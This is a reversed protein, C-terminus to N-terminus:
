RARSHAAVSVGASACHGGGEAEVREIDLLVKGEMDVLQRSDHPDADIAAAAAAADRAAKAEGRGDEGDEEAEGDDEGGSGRRGGGSGGGGSNRLEEMHQEQQLMQAHMAQLQTSLSIIHATQADIAKEARM